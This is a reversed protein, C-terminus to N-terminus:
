TGPVRVILLAAVVTLRAGVVAETKPWVTVKVAVSATCLGPAPCGLPVTSNLSPLVSMLPQAAWVTLVVVPVAVQVGANLAALWLMVATYLPSLLKVPLVAAAWVWVTFLAAVLRLRLRRGPLGTVCPWATVKVATIVAV